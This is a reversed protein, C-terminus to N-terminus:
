QWPVEVVGPGFVAMLVLYIVALWALGGVIGHWLARLLTTM